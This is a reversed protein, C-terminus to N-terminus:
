KVRGGKKAGTDVGLARTRPAKAHSISGRNKRAPRVENQIAATEGPQPDSLLWITWIFSKELPLGGCASCLNPELWYCTGTRYPQECVCAQDTTCGCVRCKM